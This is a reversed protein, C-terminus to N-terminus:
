RFSFSFRFFSSFKFSALLFFYFVISFSFL